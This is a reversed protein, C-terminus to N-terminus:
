LRASYAIRVAQKRVDTDECSEFAYRDQIESATTGPGVSENGVESVTADIEPATYGADSISIIDTGTAFETQQEFQPVLSRRIFTFPRVDFVRRIEDLDLRWAAVLKEDDKARFFQPVIARKGRRLIHKQIVAM